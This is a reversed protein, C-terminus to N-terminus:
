KKVIVKSRLYSVDAFYNLSLITNQEVSKLDDNTLESMKDLIEKNTIRPETFIESNNLYMRRYMADYGNCSSDSWLGLDSLYWIDFKKYTNLSLNNSPKNIVGFNIVTDKIMYIFRDKLFKMDETDLILPYTNIIYTIKRVPDKMGIKHKNELLHNHHISYLHECMDTPPSTRILLKSNNKIYELLDTEKLNLDPFFDVHNDTCRNNYEDVQSLIYQYVDLDSTMNLIGGLYIDQLYTLDIYVSNIQKSVSEAYGKYFENFEEENVNKSQEIIDEKRM